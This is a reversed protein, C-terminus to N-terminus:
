ESRLLSGSPARAASEAPLATLVNGAVVLIVLGLLVLGLPLVTVPVVGISSAFASWVLHGAIWGLVLGLAASIILMTSSQWLVITRVQRRTMGLAKMMALDRRRRRTSAQVTAWVSLIMAVALVIALTLPQDGMQADNALAAALVHPVQYMGGPTGDPEVALIGKVVTSAGAGPRLDIALASPLATFAAPSQARPNFDEISLLTREPLMAGRGLSVHDALQVGISPLTVTGVIRMRRATSGTGVEITDGIQKGLQRLTLVGLQIDDPGDLSRGTVTPPGVAAGHTAIGLVPISQGDVPLQTFAFTSWGRVGPQAGMLKDMNFGYWDGYGGESQILVSWNWGYRVPHSIVGNLSAGFVVATIVATVAVVSGFLNAWVSSRRRGPTPQLAYRIGLAASPPLGASVAAEAITSTRSDVSTDVPRLSRWVLASWSALLLVALLAGGGLLVLGDFSVGRVPDFRRVPGVPALPSLAVAGGVALLTGVLVAIAGGIGGAVAAESRTMGLAGLVDLQSEARHVLQSLAQGVLALMALAVLGGFVALAVAQPEIAQQVQQHVTDLRRVAFHLGPQNKQASALRALQSQLVPIDADGKVLRVGVWSFEVATSFRTETARTAGPSLVAGQTEDFQDVLVPPQAVIGVVRYTAYGTVDIREVQANQFQYTVDGGVGVGFVKALGTTLAIEHAGGELRPLRGKLVTGIDQTIYEGNVSGALADTEFSDDVRGHLVPNADFGAWTASSRIGPLASVKGTLATGLTGGEPINVSVTSANISSLYRGYASETRRAGALAALSVAGLIGCILVVILTQRWAARRSARWWYFAGAMDACDALRTVTSTTSWACTLTSWGADIM